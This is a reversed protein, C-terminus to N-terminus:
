ILDMLWMLGLDAWGGAYGAVAGVVLGFTVSIGVSILGVALSIRAGYMLRSLVDRGLHDTGLVNAGSFPPAYRNGMNQATYDFPSLIPAFVAIMVLAVIVIGGILAARDRRLQRWDQGWHGTAATPRAGATAAAGLTVQGPSEVAM